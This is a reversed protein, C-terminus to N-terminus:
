RQAHDSEMYSCAGAGTCTGCHGDCSRRPKLVGFLAFLLAAGLIGALATM